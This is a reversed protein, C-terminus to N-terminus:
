LVKVFCRSTPTTAYQLFPPIPAYGASEYLALAEVMRHGTEVVITKFGKERIKRELHTLITRSVGKGRAEPIVFMRKVEAITENIPRYAGCGVPKGGDWAVSFYGGGVEFAETAIGNIKEGPYLSAIRADLGAILATAEPSAALTERIEVSSGAPHAALWAAIIRANEIAPTTTSDVAVDVPLDPYDFAGDAELRDYLNPDTLKGGSRSQLELRQRVQAPDCRVSVFVVSGGAAAIRQRLRKPFDPSVTREPHFTFIIDGGAQIADTMVSQWIAERHRAFPESGFAYVSTLLDVTLHNHFLAHQTLKALDKGITFKGSAAPGYLFIVRPM